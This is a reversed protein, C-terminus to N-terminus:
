VRVCVGLSVTITVVIIVVCVVNFMLCFGANWVCVCECVRRRPANTLLLIINNAMSNTRACQTAARAHTPMHNNHNNHESIIYYDDSGVCGAGGPSSDNSTPQM